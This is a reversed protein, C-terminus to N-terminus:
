LLLTNTVSFSSAKMDRMSELTDNSQKKVTVDEGAKGDTKGDYSLPLSSM